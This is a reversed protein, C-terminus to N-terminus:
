EKIRAIFRGISINTVQKFTAPSEAVAITTEFESPHKFLSM